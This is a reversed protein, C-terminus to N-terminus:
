KIIVAHTEAPGHVGLILRMEIDGTRSPGSIFSVNANLPNEQYFNRIPAAAEELTEMIDAARFVAIHVQPLASVLRHSDDTTFEVIAGTEAIAFAAWSIGVQVSGLAGPMEAHNFPPKLLEVGAEACRLELASSLEEPLMGMAVKAAKKEQLISIVQDAAATTGSVQHIIGALSEHKQQFQRLIEENM